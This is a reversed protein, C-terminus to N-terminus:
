LNAAGAAGATFYPLGRQRWAVIIVTVGEFECGCREALGSEYPRSGVWGGTAGFIQVRERGRERDRERWGQEDVGAEV